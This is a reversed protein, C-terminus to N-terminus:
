VGGIAELEETQRFKISCTKCLNQSEPRIICVFPPGRPREAIM